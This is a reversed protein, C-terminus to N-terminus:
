TKRRVTRVALAWAVILLLIGLLSAGPADDTEGIYIGTAAIAIGIAVLGLAIAANRASLTM